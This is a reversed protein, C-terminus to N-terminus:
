SKGLVGYQIQELVSSALVVGDLAHKAISDAVTAHYWVGLIAAHESPIHQAWLGAILGSLIDGMGPTAMGPNGMPCVFYQKAQSKIITGAGKLVVTSSYKQQLLGCSRFRDKQVQHNDIGLLVAAEGPHPTIIWNPYHGGDRALYHLASADVVMQHNLQKVIQWIECSWKDDGLGPGVILIDDFRLHDKLRYGSELPQWIVEELGCTNPKQAAPYVMILLGAGMLLAAKAALCAAGQMQSHGAIVIVRKFCGKHSNSLRKPRIENILGEHMLSINTDISTEDKFLLQQGVYSKAIGTWLGLKHYFSHLTYDVILAQQGYLMGTDANIGSPAELSIKPCSVQNMKEIFQEQERSLPLSPVATYLDLLVATDTPIEDEPLHLDKYDFNSHLPKPLICHVRCGSGILAQIILLAEKFRTSHGCCIVVLAGQRLKLQEVLFYIIQEIFQQPYFSSAHEKLAHWQHLNILKFSDDDKVKKMM